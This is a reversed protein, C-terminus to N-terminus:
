YYYYIRACISGQMHTLPIIKNCMLTWVTSKQRCIWQIIFLTNNDDPKIFKHPIQRGMLNEFHIIWNIYSLIRINCQIIRSIDAKYTIKKSENRMFSIEVHSFIEETANIFTDTNLKVTRVPFQASGGTVTITSSSVPFFLLLQLFCKVLFFLSYLYKLFHMEDQLTCWKQM